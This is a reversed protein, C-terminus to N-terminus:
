RKFILLNFLNFQRYNFFFNLKCASYFYLSNDQYNLYQAEKQVIIITLSTNFVNSKISNFTGNFINLYYINKYIEFM